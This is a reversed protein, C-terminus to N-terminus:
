RHRTSTDRARRNYLVLQGFIDAAYELEQALEVCDQAGVSNGARLKVYACLNLADLVIYRLPKQKVALEADSFDRLRPDLVELSM